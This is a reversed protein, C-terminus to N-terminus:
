LEGRKKRQDHMWMSITIFEGIFWLAALGMVVAQVILFTKM